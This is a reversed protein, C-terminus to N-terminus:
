KVADVTQQRKHQKQAFARHCLFNTALGVARAASASAHVLGLFGHPLNPEVHLSSPVGM